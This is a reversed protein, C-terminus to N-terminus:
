AEHIHGFLHVRPRIRRVAALLDECGAHPDQPPGHPSPLVEDLIGYPPGHTVLVDTGEPIRSWVARLPEGRELNFAWDHFWPQWPSGWIALGEIEVGSDQLYVANRLAQRAERPQREFLFDHNGAVVVKHRHPLTGLWADFALVEELRGKMTADGAHILLDAEPVEIRDHLNHTDSLLVVKM